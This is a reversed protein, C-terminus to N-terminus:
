KDKQMEFSVGEDDTFIIKEGALKFKHITRYGPREELELATKGDCSVIQDVKWHTIGCIARRNFLSLLRDELLIMNVRDLTTIVENGKIEYKWVRGIAFLPMGKCSFKDKGRYVEAEFEENGSMYELVYEQEIGKPYKECSSFRKGL